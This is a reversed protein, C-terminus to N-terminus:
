YSIVLIVSVVVMLMFRVQLFKELLRRSSKETLALVDGNDMIFSNSELFIWMGCCTEYTEKLMRYEGHIPMFFKPKMLRLMLKQEEQSGHGSTHINSLPGHIVKRM